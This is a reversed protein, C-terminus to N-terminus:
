EILSYAIDLRSAYRRIARATLQMYRQADAFRKEEIAERIGPLTKVGYGTFRGPAYLSNKYYSRGPLGEPILLTQSIDRLVDNLQQVQKATLAASGAANATDFRAASNTLEVVASEIISFDIEPTLPEAAPPNIPAAPDSALAYAASALLAARTEDEDRQAAALAKLEDLYRTVTVALDGFRVPLIGADAIRMVLRGVTKSLVPGYVLGPDVFRTFNDYSDYASHYSGTAQDYGRYGINLVPLGLHHLFATYDSGSGLAALPLNAGSQAARLEAENITGLGEFAEVLVKARRRELVSVGTEPDEVVSAVQNVLHQWEHSGRMVIPGRANGDTNIYIVAKEKLEEAHTEAWESSGVVMIEEADWSAYIITRAPRWGSRVLAGLAKAESLMAVSGALPDFAGFVWADHHNGRVVWEDPRNSGKLMAIVNYAPKLSWDSKVALRVQAKDQGGIRYTYPLAGRWHKPVVEGGLSHFIKTADAYSIPLVPIKMILPSEERAVRPSGPVSGYGPTTPDGVLITSDSVSGRQVAHPSRGGGDPYTPHVAYGDQQPDSYLLTGVAGQEQALKPKLGRWGRGYRALVIKGKVSIGRRALVEYDEPLGFNVYVVGATVDGDGQFANYPPIAGELNASSSDEAIEPEMGGLVIREPKLLEVRTKVPFPYLVDFQEIKADWGWEKFSALIFEANERNHTSGVHNPASSMRKLWAMQDSSSVSADFAKERTALDSAEGALVQPVLLMSLVLSKLSNM